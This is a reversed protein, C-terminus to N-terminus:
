KKTPIQNPAPATRLNYVPGMAKVTVKRTGAVLPLPVAQQSNSTQQDEVGFPLPQKTTRNGFM